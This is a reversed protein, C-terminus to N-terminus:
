APPRPQGGLRFQISGARRSRARGSTEFEDDGGSVENGHFLFRWGDTAVPPVIEERRNDDEEDGQRQAHADGESRAHRDGRAQDGADDAAEDGARQGPAGELDAARGGTERDDDVLDDLPEIQRDEAQGNQQSAANWIAAPTNRRPWHNRATEGATMLPM